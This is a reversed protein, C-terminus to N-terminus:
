LDQYLGRAATAAIEIAEDMDRGPEALLRLAMGYGFGLMVDAVVEPSAALRIVGDAELRRSRQALADSMGQMLSSLEDAIEPNRQALTYLELLMSVYEPEHKVTAQLSRVWQDVLQGASTAHELASAMAAFRVESDRKAVEVLLREKSGFYYHLLGRSVGAERAVHDFTSGAVGRRAVSSRMADVIRLAKDTALQRKTEETAM